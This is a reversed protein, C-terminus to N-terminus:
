AASQLDTYVPEIGTGAELAGRDRLFSLDNVNEMLKPVIIPCLKPVFCPM